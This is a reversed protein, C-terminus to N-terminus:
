CCGPLGSCCGGREGTAGTPCCAMEGIGGDVYFLLARRTTRWEGEIQRGAVQGSELLTEVTDPSIKLFAAADDLTLVKESV